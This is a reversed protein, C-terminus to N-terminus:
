FEKHNAKMNRCIVWGLAYEEKGNPPHDVKLPCKKKSGWQPLQHLKKKTLYDGKNQRTHCDDWFHTTGWCFWQAVRWWYKCKFEIYDRGHTKCDKIGGGVADASCAAWVLEEPKFEVRDQQQNNECSKLGGFYPKKCKYCMYYSLRAIAYSDLDGSYPPEKLRDDKDIGEHKARQVAMENIKVELKKAEKIYKATEPHTTSM